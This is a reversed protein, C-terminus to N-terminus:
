RWVGRGPWRSICIRVSSGSMAASRGAASMGPIGWFRPKEGEDVQRTEVFEREPVSCSQIQVGAPRNANISYILFVGGLVVVILVIYLFRKFSLM